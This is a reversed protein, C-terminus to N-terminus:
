RILRPAAPTQTTTLCPRRPPPPPPPPAVTGAASYVSRRRRRPSPSQNRDQHPTCRNPAASRRHRRQPRARWLHLGRARVCVRVRKAAVGGGGSAGRGGHHRDTRTSHLTRTRTRARQPHHARTNAHVDHPRGAARGFRAARRRFGGFIATLVRVYTRTVHVRTAREAVCVCVDCDRALPRVVPPLAVLRALRRSLPVALSGAHVRTCSHTPSLSRALSLTIIARLKPM